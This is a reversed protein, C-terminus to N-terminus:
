TSLGGSDGPIKLKMIVGLCASLWHGQIAQFIKAAVLCAYCDEPEPRPLLRDRQPAAIGIQAHLHAQWQSGFTCMQMVSRMDSIPYQQPV